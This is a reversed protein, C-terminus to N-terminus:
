RREPIAELRLRLYTVKFLQMVKSRSQFNGQFWLTMWDNFMLVDELLQKAKRIRSMLTPILNLTSGITTKKRTQVIEKLEVEAMWLIVELLWVDKELTM